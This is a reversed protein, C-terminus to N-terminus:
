FIKKPYTQDTILAAPIGLKEMIKDEHERPTMGTGELVSGVSGYTGVPGKIGKGKLHAQAWEVMDLDELLDQAYKALRYGYTTPEAAQIHTWGACELDKTQEIRPGFGRLTDVLRTKVLGLAEHTLKTEVNSLPDESTMGNHVKRGGIPAVQSLEYQAAIIDHGRKKEIAWITPVSVDQTHAQLDAVEEPTALGVESQVEVGAAWVERVGGWFNNQSWIARMEPSGVRYTQPLLLTDYGFYQDEERPYESEFGQNGETEATM